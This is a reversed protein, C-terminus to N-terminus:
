ESFHKQNCYMYRMNLGKLPYNQYGSTLKERRPSSGSKDKCDQMILFTLLPPPIVGGGEGDGGCSWLKAIRDADAGTGNDNDCHEM